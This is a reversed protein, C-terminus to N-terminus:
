WKQWRKIRNKLFLWISFALVTGGVVWFVFSFEQTFPISFIIIGINFLILNKPMCFKKSFYMYLTPILFIIAASWFYIAYQTLFLLPMGVVSIGLFSLLAIITLCLNHCIQWGGLFSLGGSVGSVAVFAKEKKTKSKRQM